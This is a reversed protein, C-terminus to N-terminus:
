AHTNEARSPDTRFALKPGQTAKNGGPPVPKQNIRFKSGSRDPDEIPGRIEGVIVALRATEHVQKSPFWPFVVGLLRICFPFVSM